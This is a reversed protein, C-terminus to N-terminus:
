DKMLDDLSEGSRLLQELRQVEEMTKANKIAARIKVLNEQPPAVAARAPTAATRQAKGFMREAEAREQHKIKQFDLLRLNPLLHIVFFRYNQKKQVMNDILSLYRLSALDALPQLDALDNLNNGTLILTELNPLCQDLSSEIKTIKNNNLFITTLRSLLPFDGLKKIDNDSLDITDFQDKTAGLNEIMPIKNGRLDLERDKLPNLFAPSSLILEATLKM